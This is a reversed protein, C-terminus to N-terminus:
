RYYLAWIAEFACAILILVFLLLALTSNRRVWDSRLHFGSGQFALVLPPVLVLFYRGQVGLVVPDGLPSEALYLPVHVLVAQTVVTVLLVRRQWPFLRVPEDHSRLLLAAGLAALVYALPALSEAARGSRFILGEWQMQLNTYSTRLITLLFGLPHGLVYGLQEAEGSTEGPFNERFLLAGLLLAGCSVLVTGLTTSWYAARSRFLRRPLLFALLAMLPYGPKLVSGALSLGVVQLREARSLPAERQSLELVRATFFLLAGIHLADYSLSAMQQLSGPLLATLAFVLKGFPARRIAAQVMWTALAFTVLRALLFTALPPARVLMGLKLVLAQPLYAVPYANGVIHRLEAQEADPRTVLAALLREPEMRPWQGNVLPGAVDARLYVYDRPASAKTGLEGQALALAKYYHQAEDPVGGFPPNLLVLLLGVPLAVWLYLRELPLSALRRSLAPRDM